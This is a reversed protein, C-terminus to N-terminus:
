HYNTYFNTLFILIKTTTHGGTSELSVSFIDHRNSEGTVVTLNYRSGTVLSDFEPVSKSLAFVGNNYTM